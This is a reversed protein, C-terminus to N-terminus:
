GTAGPLALIDAVRRDVDNRPRRESEMRLKLRDYQKRFKPIGLVNARWFDDAAAWRMVTLAEQLPRRDNVLIRMAETRWTATVDPRKAREAVLAQMTSCLLEVDQALALERSEGNPSPIPHSPIPNLGEEAALPTPTRPIGQPGGQPRGQTERRKQASVRGGHRGLEQAAEMRAKTPNGYKEDLYGHIAYGGDRREWAPNEAGPQVRCLFHVAADVIRENDNTLKYIQSDPIFGDTLNLASWCLATMYLWGASSPAHVFKLGQPMNAEIRVWSM